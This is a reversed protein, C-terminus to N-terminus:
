ATNRARRWASTQLNSAGYLSVIMQVASSQDLHEGIKGELARNENTVGVLAALHGGASSGIIAISTADIQFREASARLFRIAAKIDHVQTSLGGADFAPLGCQRHCLRPGAAGCNACRSRDRVGREGMFM